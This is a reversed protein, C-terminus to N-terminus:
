EAERYRDLRRYFTSRSINLRRSAEAASIEGNCYLGMVGDLNDLKKLARGKYKGERKAIEIGERQRQLISERELQALAGFVALMFQGAPTETDIKEKQSIFMVKKSNLEDVLSLLDMTNRAFRSISEVVVTDGERVFAMMERLSPRGADKGSVKDIYVKDVGLAGMIDEQRQTNQQQTSVRVYGIKM